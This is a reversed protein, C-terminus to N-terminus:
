GETRAADVLAARGGTARAEEGGRDGEREVRVIVCEYVCVSM